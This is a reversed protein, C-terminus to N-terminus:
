KRISLVNQSRKGSSLSKATKPRKTKRKGGGQIIPSITILPLRKSLRSSILKSRIQKMVGKAAESMLSVEEQDSL